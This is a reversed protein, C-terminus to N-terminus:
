SLKELYVVQSNTKLQLNIKLPDCNLGGKRTVIKNVEINVEFSYYNVIEM